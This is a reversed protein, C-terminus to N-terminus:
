RRDGLVAVATKRGTGDARMTFGVHTFRPDLLTAAYRPDDLWQDRFSRVDAATPQTGCGGCSAALVSLAEWDGAEGDPLAEYLGVERDLGSGEDPLLAAAAGALADSPALPPVGERERARNVAEVFRDAQEAPSLPVPEEGPQLGRPTGPGAFTQVAYLRDEGAVIGFGFSDLGEMLINERHGPSNM